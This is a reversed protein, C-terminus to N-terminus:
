TKSHTNQYRLSKGPSATIYWDNKRLSELQLKINPMALPM